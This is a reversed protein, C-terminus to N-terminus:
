INITLFLSFAFSLKKSILFLFCALVALSLLVRLYPLAGLRGLGADPLWPSVALIRRLGSPVVVPAWSLITRTHDLDHLLFSMSFDKHFLAFCIFM